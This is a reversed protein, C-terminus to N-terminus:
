FMCTPKRRGRSALQVAESHVHLWDRVADKMWPIQLSAVDADPLEGIIGNEKGSPASDADSDFFVFLGLIAATMMVVVFGALLAVAILTKRRDTFRKSIAPQMLDVLEYVLM